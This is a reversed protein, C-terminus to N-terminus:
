NTFIVNTIRKRSLEFLYVKGNITKNSYNFAMIRTNGYYSNTGFTANLESSSFSITSADAGAAKKITKNNTYINVVVSDYNSINKSVDYSFGKSIKVTDYVNTGSNYFFTFIPFNRTINLDMKFFPGNGNFKWNPNIMSNSQVSTSNSYVLRTGNNNSFLNSTNNFLVFNGVSINGTFVNFTNVFHDYGATLNTSPENFACYNDIFDYSSYYNTTVSSYLYGDIANVNEPFGNKLETNKPTLSEEQNKKKKTCSCFALVLCLQIIMLGKM